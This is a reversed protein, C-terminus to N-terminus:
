PLPRKFCWSGLTMYQSGVGVGSVLEWGQSGLENFKGEMKTQDKAAHLHLCKYEWKQPSSKAEAAPAEDAEALNGTVGVVSLVASILAICLFRNM